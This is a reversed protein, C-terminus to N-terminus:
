LVAEINTVIYKWLLSLTHAINDNDSYLQIIRRYLFSAELLVGQQDVDKLKNKRREFTNSLENQLILM